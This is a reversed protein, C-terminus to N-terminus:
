RKINGYIHILIKLFSYKFIEVNKRKQFYKLTTIIPADIINDTAFPLEEGRM